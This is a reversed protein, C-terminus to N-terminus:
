SRMADLQAREAGFLALARTSEAACQAPYRGKPARPNM